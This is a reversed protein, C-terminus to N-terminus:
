AADEAEAVLRLLGRIPNRSVQRVPLLDIAVSECEIPPLTRVTVACSGSWSATPNSARADDPEVSGGTDAALLRIAEARNLM